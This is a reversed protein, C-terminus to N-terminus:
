SCNRYMVRHDNIESHTKFYECCVHPIQKHVFDPISSLFTVGYNINWSPLEIEQCEASACYVLEFVPYCFVYEM